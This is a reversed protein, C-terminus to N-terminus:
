IIENLRNTIILATKKINKVRNKRDFKILEYHKQDNFEILVYCKLENSGVEYSPGANGTIAIYLDAQILKKLGEVMENLVEISVTSYKNITAERVNLLSMKLEKSYTVVSGKFVKSANPIKTIESSIFGGTMSEALTITINRKILKNLVDRM